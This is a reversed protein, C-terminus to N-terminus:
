KNQCFENAFTMRLRKEGDINAILFGNNDIDQIMVNDGSTYGSGTTFYKFYEVNLQDDFNFAFIEYTSKKQSAIFHNKNM